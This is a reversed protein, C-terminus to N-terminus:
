TKCVPFTDILGEVYQSIYMADGGTVMGDGNVDARRLQEETLTISGVVYDAVLQADNDTVLGDDDIDGIPPCPSARYIPRAERATLAYILIGIAAIVLIGTIGKKSM